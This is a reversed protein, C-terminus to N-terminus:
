CLSRASPIWWTTKRWMDYHAISYTDMEQIVAQAFNGVHGITLIAVESGDNLVGKALPYKRLPNWDIM